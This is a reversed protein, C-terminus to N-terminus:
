RYLFLYESDFEPKNEVKLVLKMLHKNMKPLKVQGVPGQQHTNEDTQNFNWKCLDFEGSETILKAHMVGEPIVKYLDNLIWTEASFVENETWEWKKVRASSMQPRCADKVAKYADKPKSPYTIINNNTASPWPENYCWNLTMACYPKQRRGEEFIAKYGADQLIKSNNILEDLNEAKGFYFELTKECLWADPTWAKFAHHTEWATGLKPPFLEDKPIFKELVDRDSISPIGFETYATFKSQTMIELVDPGDGGDGYIKEYKFLYCGHGMGYLPSTYMFPTTPAYDYCNKNILRLALSQETMQSWGNFLENGGCWIIISPHHRLNKLVSKTEQDLIKLYSPTGEYNNCALPFEQWVMMGYEDCLEFFSDKSVMGGGWMRFLNMNAEIGLKVLPEYTEKTITGTFIEPPVFNSGKAFIRKGNLEVTIPTTSRTKPFGDPLSWATPHQVLQIKRFGIKKSKKDIIEGNKILKVEFNYLYQKGYQACWWLEPNNFINNIRVSNGINKVIENYVKNNDTDILSCEISDANGNIEVDITMDAMSLNDNLVYDLHSYSIFASDRIELFCDDCIGLPILRPHWDWEYAVAPKCSQSAQSRDVPMGPIKPTPYIIVELVSDKKIIKTLEIEVPTFMGEQYLLRIGDLIIEFEYDISKATFFLRESAKLADIAIISKYHWYKDEMWSFMKFNDSYNYDPWNEAKAWDLQVNGPVTAHVYNNPSKKNDSHGVTFKLPLYKTM